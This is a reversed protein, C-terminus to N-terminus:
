PWTSDNPMRIRGLKESNETNASIATIRITRGQPRNPRGSQHFGGGGAEGLADRPREDDEDEGQGNRPDARAVVGKERCLDRDARQERHAQVQQEAGGAEDRETVDGIEADAGIDAADQHLGIRHRERDRQRGRREAGREARQHEAEEAHTEGLDIERHQREGERLDDPRDAEFPVVDGAAVLPKGVHGIGIEAPHRRNRQEAIQADGILEVNRGEDDDQQRQRRHLPDDIRREAEHQLRDPFIRLAGGRDAEVHAAVLEGGEHDGAAEGADGARQEADEVAADEGVVDVPRFRGLHHDHGDEAADIMEPSRHDARRREHQEVLLGRGVGLVPREHEPGDQEHQQEGERAADDATQRGRHRPNAAPSSARSAQLARGRWTRQRSVAGHGVDMERHGLALDGRHDPGFPAPFDVSNLRIVPWRRGVAPWTNTSPRSTM